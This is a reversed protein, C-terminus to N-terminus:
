QCLLSDSMYFYNKEESPPHGMWHNLAQLCRFYTPNIKYSYFREFDEFDMTVLDEVKTIKNKALFVAFENDEDVENGPYCWEGTVLYVALHMTYMNRLRKTHSNLVSANSLYDPSKYFKELDEKKFFLYISGNMDLILENWDEQADIVDQSPRSEGGDGGTGTDGTPISDGEVQIDEVDDPVGSVSEVDPFEEINEVSKSEEEGGGSDGSGRKMTASGPPVPQREDPNGFLDRGEM